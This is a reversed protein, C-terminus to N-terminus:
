PRVDHSLAGRDCGPEPLPVPFSPGPQPGAVPREVGEGREGGVQAGSEGRFRGARRRSREEVRYRQHAVPDLRGPPHRVHGARGQRVEEVPQLDVQAAEFPYPQRRRCVRGTGPRRRPQEHHQRHGPDRDPVADTGVREADQQVGRDAGGTGAYSAGLLWNPNSVAGTYVGM